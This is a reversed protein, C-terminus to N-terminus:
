LAKRKKHLSPACGSHGVSSCNNASALGAKSLAPLAAITVKICDAKKAIALGVEGRRRLYQEESSLPKLHRPEKPSPPPASSRIPTSSPPSELLITHYILPQPRRGQLFYCLKHYSSFFFCRSVIGRRRFMCLIGFVFLLLM